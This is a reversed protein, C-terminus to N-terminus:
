RSPASGLNDAVTGRAHGNTEATGEITRASDPEMEADIEAGLLIVIAFVWLWTMFGIIAGLWGYTENL